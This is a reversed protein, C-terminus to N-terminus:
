PRGGKQSQRAHAEFRNACLELLAPVASLYWYTCALKSHGLYISLEHVANDINRNERYARLLHNCAFTHRLEQMRPYRGWAKQLGTQQCLLQFAKHLRVYHVHGGRPSRFFAEMDDPPGFCKDRVNQYRRLHEAACPTIPILRMPLNKSCRVTLLEQTMDVDRNQLALAEGPRLGTCALLGIITTNRLGLFENLRLPRYTLRGHILATIEQPTYLRPPVRRFTPGLFGPPPIETRPEFIILYRAFMRLASLRAAYYNRRTGEPATVWRLALDVTLPQGPAHRDAYRALSRLQYSDTGFAYGLSRRHITYQEVKKTM